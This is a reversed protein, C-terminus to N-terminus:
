VAESSRADAAVLRRGLASRAFGLVLGVLERDLLTAAGLFCLAGIPVLALLRPLVPLDPPLVARTAAVALVM